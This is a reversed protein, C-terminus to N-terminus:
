WESRTARGLDFRQFKNRATCGRRLREYVDLGDSPADRRSDTAASSVLDFRGTTCRVRRLLRRDANLDTAFERFLVVYNLGAHAVICDTRPPDYALDTECEEWERSGEPPTIVVRDIPAGDPVTAKLFTLSTQTRQITGVVWTYGCHGPPRPYEELPITVAEGNIRHALVAGFPDGCHVSGGSTSIVLGYVPRSFAVAVPEYAGATVSLGKESPSVVINTQCPPGLDLEGDQYEFTSPAFNTACVTGGAGPVSDYFYHGFNPGTGWPALADRSGCAVVVAAVTSVILPLIWKM